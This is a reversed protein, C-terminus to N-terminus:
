LKLVVVDGAVIFTALDEEGCILAVTVRNKSPRLSQSKSMMSSTKESSKTCVVRGADVLSGGLSLFCPMSCAFAM